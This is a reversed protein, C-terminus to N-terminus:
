CCRPRHAVANQRERLFERYSEVSRTCATRALFREYASEDFVEKLVAVINDWIRMPQVSSGTTRNGGSRM